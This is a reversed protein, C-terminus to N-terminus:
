HLDRWHYRKWLYALIALIVLYGLVWPGLREREKKSPDGVQELYARIKEYGEKTVGVKPMATGPLQSQPDEIFTSLFNESRARIIISLDPPLKGLYAALHTRYTALNKDFELRNMDTKTVIDIKPKPEPGIETMKVYRLAHCRSCADEFAERPSVDKPAISKLYAVMDIASKDDFAMPPMPHPKEKFVHEVGLAKTPNKLLEVMFKDDYIAGARSLDPPNVGYTAAASVPDMPAKFGQSEISHCGICQSTVLTKGNEIDAGKLDVAKFEPYTFDHGEVHKHMVSHAFPEVGIYVLLSLSVVVTVIKLERM